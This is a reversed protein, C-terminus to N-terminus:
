VMSQIFDYSEIINTPIQALLFLFLKHYDSPTSECYFSCCTCKSLLLPLDKDSSIYLHHKVFALIKNLGLVHSCVSAYCDIFKKRYIKLWSTYNCEQSQKWTFSVKIFGWIPTHPVKPIHCFIAAIKYSSGSKVVHNILIM